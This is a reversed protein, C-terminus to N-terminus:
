FGEYENFYLVVESGEQGKPWEQIRILDFVFGDDLIVNADGRCEKLKEILEKVKM